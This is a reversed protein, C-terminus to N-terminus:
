WWLSHLHKAFMARGAEKRAQWDDIAKRWGDMDESDDRIFARVAAGDGRDIHQFDFSIGYDAPDPKGDEEGSFGFIMEDLCSLLHEVAAKDDGDELSSFHADESGGYCWVPVGFIEGDDNRKAIVDRYKVLAEKIVPALVMDLNFTDNYSFIVKKGKMRM